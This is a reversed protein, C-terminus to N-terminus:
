PLMQYQGFLASKLFHNRFIEGGRNLRKELHKADFHLKQYNESFPAADLQWICLLDLNPDTKGLLFKSLVM